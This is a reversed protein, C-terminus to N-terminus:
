SKQIELRYASWDGTSVELIFDGDGNLVATHNNINASQKIIGFPSMVKLSTNKNSNLKIIITEGPKVNLRYSHGATRAVIRNESVSNADNQFSIVFSKSKWTKKANASNAFVSVTSILGLLVFFSVSRKIKDFM